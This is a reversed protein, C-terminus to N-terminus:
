KQLRFVSSTNDNNFFKMVLQQKYIRLARQQDRRTIVYFETSSQLVELISSTHLSHIQLDFFIFHIFHYELGCKPPSNLSNLCERGGGAM